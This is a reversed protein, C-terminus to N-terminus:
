LDLIKDGNLLEIFRNFEFRKNFNMKKGFNQAFEMANKDYSEITKKKYDLIIIELLFVRCRQLTIINKIRRKLSM